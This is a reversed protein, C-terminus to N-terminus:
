GSAREAADRGVLAFAVSNFNFSGVESFLRQAEEANGAGAEALALNYRHFMDNAHNSQRLHEAAAAHDGAQLASMGLVFHSGEMKRPNDDDTVLEAIKGTHEAVAGTDGRYAALLGDWFHCGATQLRRADETGVDEAIAMALENRMAVVKAARDLDGSHMAATAASNLAFNQLGKIQAAPTGMAEVGDAVEQLEDIASSVDGAHIHTFARYVATSAKSEVPAIEIAQTYAARAEEIKGLFSNVHGRKHHGLWLTPDAESAQNYSALAGELDNQARKIDGMLEHGKAEDPYAALAKQAWEEAKGFDKPENFLYNAAIGFLAGASTPDLALAREFSARAGVNDNQNSQLGALVIAARASSPYTEALETALRLGTANDNTLFTRNIEVLMREGDSVNDLNESARDLCEQFEQFSLSQNSQGFHARVFGPDEAIAAQYKERAEVGRGVDGLYQGEEFLQRAAESATTTPIEELVPAAVESDETAQPACGVAALLM